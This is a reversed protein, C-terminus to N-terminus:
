TCTHTYIHTICSVAQEHTHGLIAATVASGGQCGALASPFPTGRLSLIAVADTFCFQCNLLSFLPLPLLHHLLFPTVCPSPPLPSLSLLLPPPPPYFFFSSYHCGPNLTSPHAYRCSSNMFFNDTFCLLELTITCLMVQTAAANATCQTPDNM